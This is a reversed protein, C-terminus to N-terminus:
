YIVKGGAQESSDTRGFSVFSDRHKVDCMADSDGAIHSLCVM